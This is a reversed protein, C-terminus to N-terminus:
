MSMASGPNLADKQMLSFKEFHSKGSAQYEREKERGIHFKQVM